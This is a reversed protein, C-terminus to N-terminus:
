NHLNIGGAAVMIDVCIVRLNAILKRASNKTYETLNRDQSHKKEEKHTPCKSRIGVVLLALTPFSRKIVCSLFLFFIILYFFISVKCEASIAEEFAGKYTERTCQIASKIDYQMCSFIVM